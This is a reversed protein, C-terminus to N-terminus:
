LQPVRKEWVRYPLTTSPNNAGPPDPDEPENLRPGVDEGYSSLAYILDDLVTQKSILIRNSRAAPKRGNENWNRERKLAEIMALARHRIETPSNAGVFYAEAEVECYAATPHRMMRLLGWVGRLSRAPLTLCKRLSKARKRAKEPDDKLWCPVGSEKRLSPLYNFANHLTFLTEDGKRKVTLIELHLHPGTSREGRKKNAIIAIKTGASVKVPKYVVELGKKWNQCLNADPEVHGYLTYVSGGHDVVVVKGFEEFGPFRGAFVVEGAAVSFV